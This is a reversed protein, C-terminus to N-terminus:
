GREPLPKFTLDVPGTYDAMPRILRNNGYQELVHATWGAVRSVAFVPTFLDIPLRMAYYTSASCFDVNPYLGKQALV